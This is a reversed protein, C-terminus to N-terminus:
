RVDQVIKYLYEKYMQDVEDDFNRYQEFSMTNLRNMYIGVLFNKEGQIVKEVAFHGMKTALARDFASPKGGRQIYGLIVKNVKLDEQQEIEKALEDVPITHESIVILAHKKGIKSLMSLRNLVKKSDTGTEVSIVEEAGCAVASHLAIDGNYRGMVEVISCRQHSSSTERIKDIADVATNLATDFGITYETGRIDNDITGPIGVCNIGEESLLMLGEYSGNGGIVFLTDIGLARLNSACKQRISKEQFEEFRASLLVTGGKDIIEAVSKRNMKEIKNHYLGMYGEYIGYVDLDKRLASRVIARLATNMGPSDGGSTLVAIAM